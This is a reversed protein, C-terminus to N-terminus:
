LHDGAFEPKLCYFAQGGEKFFDAVQLLVAKAVAVTSKRALGLHKLRDFVQATTAMGGPLTRLFGVITDTLRLLEQAFPSAGSQRPWTV